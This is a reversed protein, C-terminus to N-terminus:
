ICFTRVSCLNGLLFRQVVPTSFSLLRTMDMFVRRGSVWAHSVSLCVNVGINVYSKM